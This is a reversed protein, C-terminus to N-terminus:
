KQSYIFQQLQTEDRENLAAYFTEGNEEYALMAAQQQNSQWYMYVNGKYIWSENPQSIMSLQGKEVVLRNMLQEFQQESYQFLREKLGANEITVPYLPYQADMLTLMDDEVYIRITRGKHTVVYHPLTTRLNPESGKVALEFYPEWFYAEDESLNDIVPWQGKYFEVLLQEFDNTFETPVVGEIGYSSQLIYHEQKKQVLFMQEISRESTLTTNVLLLADPQVEINIASTWNIERLIQQLSELQTQASTINEENFMKVYDIDNYYIIGKAFGSSETLSLYEYLETLRQSQEKTLIAQQEFSQIKTIQGDVELLEFTYKGPMENEVHTMQLIISQETDISQIENEQWNLENWLAKVQANLRENMFKQDNVYIAEIHEVNGATLVPTFKPKLFIFLLLVIAAVAVGSMMWTYPKRKKTKPKNKLIKTLLAEDFPAEKHIEELLQNKM